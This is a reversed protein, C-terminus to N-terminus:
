KERRQQLFWQYLKPNRYVDVVIGHGAGHFTTLRAHESGSKEITDIM